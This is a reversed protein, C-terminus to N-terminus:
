FPCPGIEVAISLAPSAADTTPDPALFTPDPAFLTPDPAFFATLATASFGTSAAVAAAARPAAIPPVASARSRLCFFLFADLLFDGALFDVRFFADARFLVAFFDGVRDDEGFFDDARFDGVLFLAFFDGARFRVADVEFRAPVL